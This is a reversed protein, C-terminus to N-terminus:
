RAISNPRATWTGTTEPYWLGEFRVAEMRWTGQVSQSDSDFDGIYYIPPHPHNDRAVTGDERLYTGVPMEKIFEFKGKRFVGKVVGRERMSSEPGDVVTGKFRGFWGFDLSLRFTTEQPEFKLNFVSDYAYSGTWIPPM